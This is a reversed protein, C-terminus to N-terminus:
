FASQRIGGEVCWTIRLNEGDIGTPSTLHNVQVNYVKM